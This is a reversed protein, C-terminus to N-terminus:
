GFWEGRICSFLLPLKGQCGYEKLFFGVAGMWFIGAFEPFREDWKSGGEIITNKMYQLDLPSLNNLKLAVIKDMYMKEELSYDHILSYAQYM